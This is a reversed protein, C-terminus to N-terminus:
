LSCDFWQPFIIIQSSDVSVSRSDRRDTLCACSSNFYFFYRFLSFWLLVMMAVVMSGSSCSSNSSGFCCVNMTENLCNQFCPSHSSKWGLLTINKEGGEAVMGLMLAVPEGVRHEITRVADLSPLCRTGHTNWFTKSYTEFVKSWFDPLLPRM